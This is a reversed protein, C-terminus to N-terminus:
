SNVKPLFLSALPENDIDYFPQYEPNGKRKIVYNEYLCPQIWLMDCPMWKEVLANINPKNFEKNDQIIIQHHIAETREFPLDINALM